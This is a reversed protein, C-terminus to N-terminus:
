NIVPNSSEEQKFNKFYLSVAEEVTKQSINNEQAIEVASRTLAIVVAAVLETSPPLGLSDMYASMTTKLFFALSDAFDLYDNKNELQLKM